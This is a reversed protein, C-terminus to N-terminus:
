SQPRILHRNRGPPAKAGPAVLGAPSETNTGPARGSVPSLPRAHSETERAAHICGPEGPLSAAERDGSVGSGMTTTPTRRLTTTATPAACTPQRTTGRAAGCCAATQNGATGLKGRLGAAVARLLGHGGARLAHGRWAAWRKTLSERPMRGAAVEEAFWGLRRRARRLKEADMRRRDPRIQVGLFTVGQATPFSRSKEEALRLRDVALRQIIAARWERLQPRSDSFLLFDDVYRLYGGCHLTEKVWHDFDDLMIGGFWQSTLNGIPLGVRRTGAEALDDGPFAACVTEQPNSSDIIWDLVELTRRCQVTRRLKAKLVAHDM